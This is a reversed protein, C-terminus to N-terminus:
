RCTQNGPKTTNHECLYSRNRRSLLKSQEPYGHVHLVSQNIIFDSAEFDCPSIVVGVVFATNAKNYLVHCELTTTWLLDDTETTCNVEVATRSCVEVSESSPQLEVVGSLFADEVVFVRTLARTLKYRKGNHGFGILLLIGYVVSSRKGFDLGVEM